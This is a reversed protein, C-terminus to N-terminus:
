PITVKYDEDFVPVKGSNDILPSDVGDIRLRIFYEGGPVGSMLFILEDYQEQEPDPPPQPPFERDGLLLSVKQEVWVRPSCTIKITVKYEDDVPPSVETQIPLDIKPMLMLPIENTTHIYEKTNIVTKVLVAIKYFGAPWKAPEDPLQLKIGTESRNGPAVTIEHPTDLIPHSFSVTVTDAAVGLHHGTFTLQDGPLASTRNGPFNVAELTPFPPLLHPQVFVGKENGNADKGGRTLVPLPTRTPLKSDILVVSVEYAASLRYQTQFGAWLKSVEDLSIPQPTIRLREVQKHLGSVKCIEKIEQRGLLTHDHLISMAKGLLLHGILESGNEGYATIIYYLNLALPTHGTEGPKVRGPLDTNRWAANYEVHYLFLNVQNKNTSFEYAKDLPYTEVFVENKPKAEAPLDDFGDITNIKEIEKLLNYLILTVAAISFENSM